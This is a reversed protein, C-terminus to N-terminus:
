LCALTRMNPAVSQLLTLRSQYSGMVSSFVRVARAVPNRDSIEKLREALRDAIDNVMGSM